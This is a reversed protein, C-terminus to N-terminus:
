FWFDFCFHIRVTDALTIGMGSYFITNTPAIELFYLFKFSEFLVLVVLSTICPFHISNAYVRLVYVRQASNTFLLLHMLTRKTDSPTLLLLNQYNKYNVYYNGIVLINWQNKKIHFISGMDPKSMRRTNVNAGLSLVSCYLLHKCRQVLKGQMVLAFLAHYYNRLPYFFFSLMILKSLM